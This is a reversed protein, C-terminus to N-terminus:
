KRFKVSCNISNNTDQVNMEDKKNFYSIYLNMNREQKEILPMNAIIPANINNAIENLINCRNDIKIFKYKNIANNNLYIAVVLFSDKLTYLMYPPYWNKDSKISDDKCTINAKEFLEEFSSASFDPEVSVMKGLGGFFYDFFWLCREGEKSPPIASLKRANWYRGAILGRWLSKEPFLKVGFSYTESLTGNNATQYLRKEEKSLNGIFLVIEKDSHEILHINKNSLLRNKTHISIKEDPKPFVYAILDTTYSLDNEKFFLLNIAEGNKSVFTYDPMINEYNIYFDNRNENNWGILKQIRYKYIHYLCQKKESNKVRAMCPVKERNELWIRQRKKLTIKNEKRPLNDNLEKYAKAMERDLRALEPDSCILKEVETKAKACDFSPTIAKDNVKTEAIAQATEEASVTKEDKATSCSTMLVVSFLFGTIASTANTLRAM